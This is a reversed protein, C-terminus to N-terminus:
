REMRIAIRMINGLANGLIRMDRSSIKKYLKHDKIAPDIMNYNTITCSSCFGIKGEIDYFLKMADKSLGDTTKGETINSTKWHESDNAGRTPHVDNFGQYEPTGFANTDTGAMEDWYNKFDKVTGKYHRIKSLDSREQNNEM